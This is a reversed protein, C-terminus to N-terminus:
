PFVCVIIKKKKKIKTIVHFCTVAGGAPMVQLKQVVTASFYYPINMLSTNTKLAM